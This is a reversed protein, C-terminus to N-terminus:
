SRSRTSSETWAVGGRQVREAAVLNGKREYVRFAEESVQFAEEHREAAALVTALDALADGHQNPRDTQEALAVAERALREAEDFRGRSALIRARVGRWGIQTSLDDSAGAQEAVVTLEYAEENRGQAEVARALRAATTSLFGKEGMGKLNEYDARLCREAAAPDDALMAVMAEPHSNASLTVGFDALIANAQDILLRAEDFHGLMAQLAALPHLLLAEEVRRGALRPLLEECRAIAEPVPRPGFLCSSALWVLVEAEEHEAGALRAHEAARQWAAEAEGTRGHIWHLWAELRRARCLGLEDGEQEFVPLVQEVAAAAEATAENTAQLRLFLQQVLAHASLREEGLAAAAQGADALTREAEELKGAETLTAGLETLLAVREPDDEPLLAIARELLNIAAPHDTRALARRGAADLRTAARLALGAGRDGVRDLESVYHCAQELHYGAIEEIETLRMGPAQELWDAFREHLDARTVKSLSRYAADRILIHRFRFSQAEAVTGHEPRILDKHVLAQLRPALDGTWASLAELAARHFVPGEVAAHELVNREDEDLRELRAELLASITPPIVVLSLETAPSWGGESRVLLGDEILMELIEEVFLPNGGAAAGIRRRAPPELQEGLLAAILQDSEAEDLPELKISTANVKGGGWGPRADYLEPRAICVLLLPKDHAWEAVHEILEFFTQEGWQVDDFLVVLPRRAALAEFLKRVVRFGEEASAESEVLGILRAVGEAIAEADAGLEARLSLAITRIAEDADAEGLMFAQRVVEALPWFTIGEGYPLCRGSLRRARDGLEDLVEEVLRSKGVGAPGLVTFLQCTRDRVSREFAQRLMAAERDRGIMASGLRPGPERATGPLVATVLFAPLPEARGKATVELPEAEVSRRVLRYTTAGILIGDAPAAQELRKGLNIAPGTAMAKGTGVVVEGTNIGTRTDLHVGLRGELEDNVEALREGMEVGARVARLADDERVVPLGFVAYIGDGAYHEVTGGHRTIAGAMADFFLGQIRRVSEPDFADGLKTWDVVDAFLVTVTKRVTRGSDALSEGCASCFRSAAANEAGCNPCTAM